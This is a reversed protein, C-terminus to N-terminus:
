QENNCYWQILLEHVPNEGLMGTDPYMEELQIYEDAKNLLRNFLMVLLPNEFHIYQPKYDDNVAGSTNDASSRRTIFLFVQVPIKWEQRWQYLRAFYTAESEEHDKVPVAKTRVVWSKRKLVLQEEYVIAPYFRVDENRAPFYKLYISDVAAQIPRFSISQDWSFYTLLQYLNSRFRFTQLCLDFPVITRGTLTHQLILQSKNEDMRVVIDRIAVQQMAPLSNQGDPMRLELPLLSPHINANFFSADTLEIAMVDSTAAENWKELERAYDHEFLHLFRGSAKGMGQFVSNVVAGTKIANSTNETFCQAFMGFAFSRSHPTAPPLKISSLAEHTILVTNQHQAIVPEMVQQLQAIWSTYVANAATQFVDKFTPDQQQRELLPLKYQKYYDHYFRFLGVEGGSSYTQQFFHYMRKREEQMNDLPSLHRCLQTMKEALTQLEAAPYACKGETFADEYLINETTFKRSLLNSKKVVTRQIAEVVTDDMENIPLAPTTNSGPTTVAHDNLLRAIHELIQDREQIVANDFQTTLARIQQLRNVVDTVAVNATPLNLLFKTLSLDWDPHLASTELDWELLGFDFLELLFDKVEQRTGDMYEETLLHVIEFIRYRKRTAQVVELILLTAASSPIQQFSEVNHVNVLFRIGDANIELTPNVRLFLYDKIEAHNILWQRFYQYVHNNIRARSRVEQEKPPLAFHAARQDPVAIGIHTFTSFPSTKFYMRTLYRMLGFEMKKDGSTYASQNKRLFGPLQDFLSKSSLRIGKLLLEDAAMQHYQLRSAYLASHYLQDWHVSEQLLAQQLQQYADLLPQVGELTALTALQQPKIKRGNFVDRRLQVLVSKVAEDKVAAIAAYLAECLQTRANQLMGELRSKEENHVAVDPCRMNEFRRHHGSAYRVLQYPLIAITNM